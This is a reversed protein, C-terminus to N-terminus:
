PIASPATKKQRPNLGRPIVDFVHVRGHADSAIPILIDYTVSHHDEVGYIALRARGRHDNTDVVAVDSCGAVLWEVYQDGSYGDKIVRSEYGHKPKIDLIRPCIYKRRWFETLAKTLGDQQVHTLIVADWITLNEPGNAHARQNYITLARHADPIVAM